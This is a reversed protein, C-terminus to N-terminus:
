SNFFNIRATTVADINDTATIDTQLNTLAQEIPKALVKGFEVGPQDFSNINWLTGLTAARNEYLALLAGLYFANLEPLLLLNSPRKGPYADNPNVADKGNALAQAQALCNALLIRHHVLAEPLDSMPKRVAIFDVPIVDTGQHLLQFYSHQANSGASGFVVPSSHKVPKGDRGIRKGNSEMDLQQLWKPFGDLADAYPVVAYATIKKKEQQYLLTLAMIVPLNEELPTNKFHLDM